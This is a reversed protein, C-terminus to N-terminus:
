KIWLAAGICIGGMFGVGLFVLNEVFNNKVM